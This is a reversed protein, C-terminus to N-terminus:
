YGVVYRLVETAANVSFKYKLQNLNEVWQPPLSEGAALIWGDTDGSGIIEVTGTCGSDAQINVLRAPIDSFATASTSASAIKGTKTKGFTQIM